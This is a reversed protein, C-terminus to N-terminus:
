GERRWQSLDGRGGGNYLKTSCCNANETITMAQRAEKNESAKDLERRRGKGREGKGGGHPNGEDGEGSGRPCLIAGPLSKM